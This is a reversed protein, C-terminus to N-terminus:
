DRTIADPASGEALADGLDPSVRGYGASRAWTGRDAAHRLKGAATLVSGRPVMQLGAELRALSPSLKVAGPVLGAVTTRKEAGSASGPM